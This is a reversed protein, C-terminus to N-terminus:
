ATTLISGSPDISFTVSSLAHKDFSITLYWDRTCQLHRVAHMTYSLVHSCGAVSRGHVTVYHLAATCIETSTKILFDIPM